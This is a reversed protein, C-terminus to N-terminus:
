EDDDDDLSSLLSTNLDKDSAAGSSAISKRSRFSTWLSFDKDLDLANLEADLDVDRDQEKDNSSTM